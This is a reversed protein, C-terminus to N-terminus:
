KKCESYWSKGAIETGGLFGPGHELFRNSLELGVFHNCKDLEGFTLPPELIAVKVWEAATGIAVKSGM